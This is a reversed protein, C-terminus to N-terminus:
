GLPYAALLLDIVQIDGAALTVSGSPVQYAIQWPVRQRAVRQRVPIRRRVANVTLSRQSLFRSVNAIFSDYRAKEPSLPPYISAEQEYAFVEEQAILFKRVLEIFKSRANSDGQVTLHAQSDTWIANADSSQRILLTHLAEHLVTRKLDQQTAAPVQRVGGQTPVTGGRLMLLPMRIAAQLRAPDGVDQLSVFVRDTTAAAQGTLLEQQSTPAIYINLPSSRNLGRLTERLRARVQQQERREARTSSAPFSGLDAVVQAVAQAIVTKASQIRRSGGSSSVESRPYAFRIAISGVRTLQPEVFVQALRQSLRAPQGTSSGSRQSAPDQFWFTHSAPQRSRPQRQVQLPTQAGSPSQELVHSLEHALLKQGKATKPAYEGPGFAIDKGVTYASADLTDASEAAQQDSHVRVGAFDHGLMAKMKARSEPDLPQGPSQMVDQVHGPLAERAFNSAAQNGAVQQLNLLEKRLALTLDQERAKQHGQQEEAAKKRKRDFALAM